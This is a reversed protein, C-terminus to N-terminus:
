FVNLVERFSIFIKSSCRDILWDFIFYLYPFLVHELTTVMLKGRFIAFDTSSSSNNIFEVLEIFFQLYNRIV